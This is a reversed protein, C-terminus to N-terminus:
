KKKKRKIETFIYHRKCYKCYKRLEFIIKQQNKIQELFRKSKYTTYSGCGPKNKKINCNICQLIVIKNKNKKEIRNM